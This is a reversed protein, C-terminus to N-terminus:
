ELRNEQERLHCYQEVLDLLVVAFYLHTLRLSHRFALCRMTVDAQDSHTEVTLVAAEASSVQDDCRTAVFYALVASGLALADFHEDLNGPDSRLLSVAVALSCGDDL